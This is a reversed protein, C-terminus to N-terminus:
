QTATAAQCAAKAARYRSRVITERERLRDYRDWNGNIRARRARKRLSTLKERLRKARECSDDRAQSSMFWAGAVQNAKMSLTCPGTGSCAGSWGAFTSGSAPSATLRVATGDPYSHSCDSGCGIGAPGSTVTGSGSGAKAVTLSRSPAGGGGGGGGRTPDLPYYDDEDKAGDGDTDPKPMGPCAMLTATPAEGPGKGRQLAIGKVYEIGSPYLDGSFPYAIGVWSWRDRSAENSFWSHQLIGSVNCNTRPVHHTLVRYAEVREAETFEDTGKWHWGIENLLMPMGDPIGADRVATRLRNLTHLQREVEFGPYAHVAVASALNLIAPERTVARRLFDDMPVYDPEPRNAGLLGIGGTVVSASPQVARIARAAEVFYRAWVEPEPRPCWAGKLHQENWIEYTRIPRAPLTPHAAWFGGDAGYRAAVAKAVGAFAVANRIAPALSHIGASSNCVFEDFGDVDSAWNPAQALIVQVELGAKAASAVVKDAKAFYYTPDSTTPATPQLMRWPMVVRVQTIGAARIRSFHHGRRADDISWADHMNVGFYDAPVRESAANASPPGLPGFLM